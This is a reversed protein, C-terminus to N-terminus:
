RTKKLNRRRKRYVRLGYKAAKYGAYLLGLRKNKRIMKFLFLKKLAMFNM